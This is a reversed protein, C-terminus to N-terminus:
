KGHVGWVYFTQYGFPQLEISETLTARLPLGSIVTCGGAPTLPQTRQNCTEAPGLRQLSIPDYSSSAKKM